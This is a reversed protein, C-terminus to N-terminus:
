QTLEGNFSLSTFFRFIKREKVGAENPRLDTQYAQARVVTRGLLLVSLTGGYNRADDVRRGSGDSLVRFPYANTGTDAYGRVAVRPGVRVQLAGGYRSEIYLQDSVIRSYVPRRHGYAQLELPGLANWSIFYSGVTASYRPFLSGNFPSGKRYGGAVNVFFRPRDFHVGGLLALSQNDRLQPTEVFESRTGQAGVTVDLSTTLKLRFGALAASDTRNFEEAQFTAAPDLGQPSYRRQLVEAGGVFSLARTLGIELNGSADKETQVVTAQTESNLIASGKDYSGNVAASLRNGLALFSAEYTGGWTRRDVLKDYWIYEPVAVAKLYFKTGLPLIARGGAGATVTWDGIPNEDASRSFVNNDYGAESIKIMPIIRLPGLRLRADQLDRQLVEAPPVTRDRPVEDATLQARAADPTLAVAAALAATAAARWALKPPMM